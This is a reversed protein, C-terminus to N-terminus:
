FTQYLFKKVLFSIFHYIILIVKEKQIKYQEELFLKIKERKDFIDKFKLDNM